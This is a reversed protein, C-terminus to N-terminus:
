NISILCADKELKIEQVACDVGALEFEKQWMAVTQKEDDRIYDDLLMDIRAGKFLGCVIPAAPYRAMPGTASPPGDVIVLVRLDQMKRQKVWDSLISECGYFPQVAGSPAIYDELPSHHLQVFDSVQAQKLQALTLLYYKELHDFSFFKVVDRGARRDVMRKLSRAVVATSVGSGFEIVVDYDNFELLQILYFGFDYSIPWSNREVNLSILEGGNLYGQVGVFSDIQKVVNSSRQSLDNRIRKESDKILKELQAYAKHLTEIKSLLQVESEKTDLDGPKGQLAAERAKILEDNKAQLAQVQALAAQRAKTEANVDRIWVLHQVRPHRTSLHQVCRLGASQFTEALVVPIEAGEGSMAALAVRCIVIDAQQLAFGAGPLLSEAPQCDLVLWNVHLAVTGFLDDVTVPAEVGLDGVATLQPWLSQMTDLSALGSEAPNSYRHFVVPDRTGSVVERRVELGSWPVVARQLHQYQTEDGEVLITSYQRTKLWQVFPGMGNGAGVVLVGAPPMIAALVDLWNALNLQGTSSNSKAINSM